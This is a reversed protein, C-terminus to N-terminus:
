SLWWGIVTIEVNDIGADCNYEVYQDPYTIPILAITTPIWLNNVQTRINQLGSNAGYPCLILSKNASGDHVRVLLLALVTDDPILSSIDLTRYTNDMTLDNEDFDASTPYPNRVKFSTWGNKHKHSHM